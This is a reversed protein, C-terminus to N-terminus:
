VNYVCVYGYVFAIHMGERRGSLPGPLASVGTAFLLALM